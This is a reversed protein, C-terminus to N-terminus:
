AEGNAGAQGSTSAEASGISVDCRGRYTGDTQPRSAVPWDPEGSVTSAGLGRGQQGRQGMARVARVEAIARFAAAQDTVFPGDEVRGSALRHAFHGDDRGLRDIMWRIHAEARDLLPAHESSARALMEAARACDVLRTSRAAPLGDCTMRTDLFRALARAACLRIADDDLFEGLDLLAAVSTAESAPCTEARTPVGAQSPRSPISGDERQEDVARGAVRQAAALCAEDGWRSGVRALLEACYLDLATEGEDGLPTRAFALQGEGPALALRDLLFRCAAEVAHRHRGDGTAEHLDALAEAVTVSVSACPTGARVHVPGHRDYPLAWALRGQEDRIALAHLEEGLAVARDLHGRNGALLDLRLFGAMAMAVAEPSRHTAVGLESRVALPDSSARALLESVEAPAHRDGQRSLHGLLDAADHGELGNRDLWGIVGDIARDL